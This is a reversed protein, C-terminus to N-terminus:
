LAQTIVFLTFSSHSSAFALIGCDLNNDMICSQVISQSLKSCLLKSAVLGRVLFLKVNVDLVLSVGNKGRQLTATAFYTFHISIIDCPIPLFDSGVSVNFLSVLNFPLILPLITEPDVKLLPSLWWPGQIVPPIPIKISFFEEMCKNLM